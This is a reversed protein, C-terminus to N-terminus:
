VVITNISDMCTCHKLLEFGQVVFCLECVNDYFHVMALGEGTVPIDKGCDARVKPLFSLRINLNDQFIVWHYHKM